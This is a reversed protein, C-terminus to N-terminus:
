KVWGSLTMKESSHPGASWDGFYGIDSRVNLKMSGSVDSVKPRHRANHACGPLFAVHTFDFQKNRCDCEAATQCRAGDRRHWDCRDRCVGGCAHLLHTPDAARISAAPPSGIIITAVVGIRIVRAVTIPMVVMVAM